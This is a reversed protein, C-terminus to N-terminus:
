ETKPKSQQRVESDEKKREKGTESSFNLAPSILPLPLHQSTVLSRAFASVKDAVLENSIDAKQFSHCVSTSRGRAELEALGKGQHRLVRFCSSFTFLHQCQRFLLPGVKEMSFALIYDTPLALHSLKM